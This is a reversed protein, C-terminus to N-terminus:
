ADNKVSKEKIFKIQKINRDIINSKHIIKVTKAVDTKPKIKKIPFTSKVNKKVINPKKFNFNFDTLQSIDCKKLEKDQVM